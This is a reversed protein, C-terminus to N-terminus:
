LCAFEATQDEAEGLDGESRGRMQEKVANALKGLGDRMRASAQM